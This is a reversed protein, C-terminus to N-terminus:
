YYKNENLVRGDPMEVTKVNDEGKADKKKYAADEILDMLRDVITQKKEPEELIETEEITQNDANKYVVKTKITKKAIFFGSYFSAAIVVVLILIILIMTGVSIM